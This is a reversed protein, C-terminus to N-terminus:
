NNDAMVSFSNVIRGIEKEPSDIRSDLLFEALAERLGAMSGYRVSRDRQLCTVIIGELKKPVKRNIKRPRMYDCELIKKMVGMASDGSFPPVGTVLFYLVIGLSFVDTSYSVDGGEIQEPSMYLPTGVVRNHLTLRISASDLLRSFGFDTVKVEGGSSMLINGPKVDRHLVNNKHAYELADCV